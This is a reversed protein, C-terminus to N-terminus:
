DQGDLVKLPDMEGPIGFKAPFVVDPLADTRIVKGPNGAFISHPEVDEVVITGPAIRSGRGVTVAGIIVAHPGIWVEDEIRPFTTERGEISIHDKQGITVGHFITV